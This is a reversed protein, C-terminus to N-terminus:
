KWWEEGLVDEFQKYLKRVTIEDVENHRGLTSRHTGVTYGTHSTLKREQFPLGADQAALRLRKVVAKGKMCTDLDSYVLLDIAVQVIHLAIM